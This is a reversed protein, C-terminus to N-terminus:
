AGCPREDSSAQAPPADTANTQGKESRHYADLRRAREIVADLWGQDAVELGDLLADLLGAESVGRDVAVSRITEQTAVSLRLRLRRRRTNDHPQAEAPPRPDAQLPPNGGSIPASPSM